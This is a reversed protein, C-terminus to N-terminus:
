DREVSPVRTQSWEVEDDTGSWDRPSPAYRLPDPGYDNYGEHGPAVFFLLLLAAGVIPMSGALLWLGTRNIDHLRRVGLSIMPVAFIIYLVGLIPVLFFAGFLIMMVIVAFTM